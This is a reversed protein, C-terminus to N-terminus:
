GQHGLGIVGPKSMSSLNEFGVRIFHQSKKFEQVMSLTHECYAELDTKVLFKNLKDALFVSQGGERLHGFDSLSLIENLKANSIDLLDPLSSIDESLSKVSYWNADAKAAASLFAALVGTFSSELGSESM